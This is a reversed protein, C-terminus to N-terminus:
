AYIMLDTYLKCLEIHEQIYGWTTSRIYMDVTWFISSYIHVHIM